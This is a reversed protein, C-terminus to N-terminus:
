AALWAFVVHLALGSSVGVLAGLIIDAAVHQRLVLRSWAVLLVVLALATAAIHNPWVLFAAFVAFAVHLSMKAMGRSLHGVVVIVGSLGVVLPFGVHLGALGLAAALALLGVGVRGNFQAREAPVSADIHVWDGRRAKVFSYALIVSGCALSVVLAAQSIHGPAAIVTAMPMLVSPHGAISVLRALFSEM